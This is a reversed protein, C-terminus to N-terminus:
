ATLAGILTEYDELRSFGAATRPIQESVRADARVAVHVGHTITELRPAIGGGNGIAIFNKAIDSFGSRLVVDLPVNAVPM